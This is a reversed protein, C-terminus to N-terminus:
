APDGSTTLLWAAYVDKYFDLFATLTVEITSWAQPAYPPCHLIAYTRVTWAQKNKRYMLVPMLGLPAQEVCQSWWEEVKLTEHRKVEIAIGPIGLIDCGGAISQQLNRQVKHSQSHENFRGLSREVEQMAMVMHSLAEREGTKGKAVSSRARQSRVAPSAPLPIHDDIEVAM